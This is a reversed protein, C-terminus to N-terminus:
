TTTASLRLIEFVVEGGLAILANTLARNGEVCLRVFDFRPDAHHRIAEVLMPALDVHATHLMPTGPFTPDFPAFGVLAGADDRLTIMRFTPRARFMQLRALPVDFRAAIEADEEATSLQEAVGAVRSIRAWDLKVVTSELEFALGCREYLRIASTNDRKVNLYWRTCGATRAADRAHELLRQGIRQGRVHRDVALQMVHALEAYRRWTVFGIVRDDITAVSMVPVIAATFREASPLPDPIALEGFLREFDAYDADRAPRIEVTMNERRPQNAM